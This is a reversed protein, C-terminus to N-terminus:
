LLYLDLDLDLDLSTVLHFYQMATTRCMNYPDNPVCFVITANIKSNSGLFPWYFTLNPWVLDFKWFLFIRRFAPIDQGTKDWSELFHWKNKIVALLFALFQMEFLSTIVKIQKKVIGCSFIFINSQFATYINNTHLNVIYVGSKQIVGFNQFKYANIKSFNVNQNKPTLISM